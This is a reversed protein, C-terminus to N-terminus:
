VAVAIRVFLSCIKYYLNRTVESAETDAFCRLFVM